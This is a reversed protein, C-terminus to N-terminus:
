YCFRSLSGRADATSLQKATGPRADACPWGYVTPHATTTATIVQGHPLESGFDRMAHRFPPRSCPLWVDVRRVIGMLKTTGTRM